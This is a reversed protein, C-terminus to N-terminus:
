QGYYRKHHGRVWQTQSLLTLCVIYEIIDIYYGLYVHRALLLDSM